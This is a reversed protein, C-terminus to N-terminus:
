ASAIAEDLCARLRGIAGPLDLRTEAWARTRARKELAAQSSAAEAERLARVFAAEDAIPLDWGVGEAELGRWPTSDSILVPTGCLLAEVISHGYNESGSPQILLDHAAVVPMVDRNPIEGKWRVELRPGAVEDAVARCHALYLPDVAPGYIDLEARIGSRAVARIAFDLNKIPSIRGVFAIRLPEDPSRPPHPPLEPLARVNPGILVKDAFPLIKRIRAAEEESTAQLIVDKLLGLRRVAQLHLRKRRQKIALAPPFLEGRPALLLPTKPILGTRRMALVPLTLRPDFFSNLLILRAHSERIAGRLGRRGLPGAELPLWEVGHIRSWRGPMDGKAATGIFRFRYEPLTRAMNILSQNPGTAEIGRSFRFSLVLIEPRTDGEDDM